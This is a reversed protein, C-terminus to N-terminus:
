VQVLVFAHSTNGAVVSIERNFGNEFVARFLSIMRSLYDDCGPIEIIRIKHANRTLVERFDRMIIIIRMWIVILVYNYDASGIRTTDRRQFQIARARSDRDNMAPLIDTFANFIPNPRINQISDLIALDGRMEVRY